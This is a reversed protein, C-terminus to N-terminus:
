SELDLVSGALEKAKELDQENVFIIEGFTSNSGYIDMIGASGIGEKYSAIGNQKLLDIIMEAEINNGVTCLQAVNTEKM